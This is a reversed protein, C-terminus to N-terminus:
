HGDEVIGEAQRMKVVIGREADVIALDVDVQAAGQEVETQGIDDFYWIRGNSLLVLGIERDIVHRGAKHKHIAHLHM